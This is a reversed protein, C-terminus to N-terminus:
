TLCTRRVRAATTTPIDRIEEDTFTADGSCLVSSTRRTGVNSVVPFAGGLEAARLLWV